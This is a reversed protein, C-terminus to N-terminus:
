EGGGVELLLIEDGDQSQNLQATRDFGKFFKKKEQSFFGKQTLYILTICYICFNILPILSGWVGIAFVFFILGIMLLGIIESYSATITYFPLMLDQIDPIAFFTFALLLYIRFIDGFPFSLMMFMGKIDSAFIVLCAVLAFNLLPSLGIVVAHSVKKLEGKISQSAYDRDFALHFNVKVDYGCARIAITQIVQHMFSGPFFVINLFTELKRPIMIDVLFKTLFLLAFVLLSIKVTGTFISVLTDWLFSFISARISKM